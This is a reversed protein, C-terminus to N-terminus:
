YSGTTGGGGFTGGGGHFADDVVVQNGGMTQSIIIAEPNMEAWKEKLLNERSFGNKPTQLYKFLGISIALLLIGSITFTIEPHGLSYYYKFTFVSFALAILSVRLLIIDKNRIGMVLYLAPIAVTLVYFVFALPIDEGPVVDLSMLNVSLERVVLYNGAVYITLLSLCEVIIICDLWPDLRELKKIKILVFYIPTFVIIFALPILQQMVGGMNYFQSFVFYGFCGFAAITSLLDLYRFAAFAFVILCCVMIIDENFHSLGAVGGIVFGSAHYLLAETVGSKYHKNNSIFFQDLLFFSGIGYLLAMTSIVSENAEIIMLTLLGTVGTLAIVTAIFLLIRILFNPHYFECKYAAAIATFQEKSIFKSRCWQNAEKSIQLNHLWTQNYASKM